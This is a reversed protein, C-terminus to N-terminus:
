ENFNRIRYLHYLLVTMEFLKTTEFNGEEFSKCVERIAKQVEEESSMVSFRSLLKFCADQFDRRYQLELDLLNKM